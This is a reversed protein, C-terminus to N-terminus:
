RIKLPATSRPRARVVTVTDPRVSASSVVSPEPRIVVTLVRYTPFDAYNLYRQFVLQGITDNPSWGVQTPISDWPISQAWGAASQVAAARFAVQGSVRTARAVQFMLGGLSMLVVSLITLALMIEVLGVGLEGV